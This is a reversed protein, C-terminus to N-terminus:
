FCLQFFIRPQLSAPIQAVLITYAESPKKAAMLPPWHTIISLDVVLVLLGIVNIWHYIRVPLEWVYIRRLPTGM